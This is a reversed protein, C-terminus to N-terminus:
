AHQNKSLGVVADIDDRKHVGNRKTDGCLVCRHTIIYRKEEIALSVPEMMGGCSAARDGPYVDVHKSWLCHPCHNTYGNGTVTTGCHECSFDEITRKFSM